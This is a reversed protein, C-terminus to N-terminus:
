LRRAPGPLDLTAHGDRTRGLATEHEAKLWGPVYKLFLELGLALAAVDGLQGLVPV